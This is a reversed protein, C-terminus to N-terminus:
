GRVAGLKPSYLPDTLLQRRVQEPTRVDGDGDRGLIGYAENLQPDIGLQQAVRAESRYATVETNWFAELVGQKAGLVPNQGMTASNVFGAVARGAIEAGTRADDAAVVSLDDVM